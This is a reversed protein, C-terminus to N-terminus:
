ALCSQLLFQLEVTIQLVGVEISLHLDVLTNDDNHYKEGLKRASEMLVGVGRMM